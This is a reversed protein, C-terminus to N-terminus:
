PSRAPKQAGCGSIAPGSVLALVILIRSATRRLGVLRDYGQDATV